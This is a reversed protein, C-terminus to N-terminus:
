TLLRTTGDTWREETGESTAVNAYPKPFREPEQDDAEYETDPTGQELTVVEASATQAAAQDAHPGNLGITGDDHTVKFWWPM